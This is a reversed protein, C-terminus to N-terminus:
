VRMIHERTTSQHAAGEERNANHWSIWPGRISRINRPFCIRRAKEECNTRKSPFNNLKRSQTNYVRSYIRRSLNIRRPLLM